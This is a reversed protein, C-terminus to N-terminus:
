IQFKMLVVRYKFGSEVDRAGSTADENKKWFTFEAVCLKEELVKGVNELCQGLESNSRGKSVLDTLALRIEVKTGIVKQQLIEAMPIRYDSKGAIFYGLSLLVNKWNESTLRDQMTGLENIVESQRSVEVCKKYFWSFLENQAYNLALKCFKDFDNVHFDLFEIKCANKTIIIDNSTLKIQSLFNCGLTWFETITLVDYLLTKPLHRSFPSFHGSIDSKRRFHGKQGLIVLNSGFM